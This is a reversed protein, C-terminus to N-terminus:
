PLCSKRRARSNRGERIGSASPRPRWAAGSREADAGDLATEIAAFLSSADIPKAAHSDMGAAVYKEIQHAMANATQAIIPTQPRGLAAERRRIERAATVGDMVADPRGDPDAGVRRGGLRGAGGRRARGDDALRLDPRAPDEVGAPQFSQGVGGAVAARALFDNARGGRSARPFPLTLSFRSGEGVESEIAIRGGMLVALERSIALGLGTGGHRRTTSADIQTFKAFLRELKDASVGIRTDAVVFCLDEGQRDVSLRVQGKATFKLANSFLNYLIQRRRTPDCLCAGAVEPAIRSFYVLGQKDAQLAFAAEVGTVLPGVDFAIAELEVNGPEIKSLDHVDNLLALLTEGSSRIVALRRRPADSLGDVEMAQAMGLVSNLPTRIEHSMTALFTSKAANAAEAGKAKAVALASATRDGSVGLDLVYGFFRVGRVARLRDAAM